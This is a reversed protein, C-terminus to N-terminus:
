MLVVDYQERTYLTEAQFKIPIDIFAELQAVSNSEQDLMVDVVEPAALVVFQRPSYQRAERLLERFIEYCITEATKISGRGDCLPCPECLIQGLSERTRKRTMEVLGLPSVQSIHSKARDKELHKELARLVAQRHEESAMDIFDLIIIGGLNRLRLQRAIAAAAVLNTKFITEELNRHGVYAGTNVDITAMAETQDVVLYGGSKLPVKKGLAKQIEDEIGYLEFIPREGPYHELRTVMEPVFKDAFQLMRQCTERSDIRVKEVNAGVFDRLVRLVLPLDEYLAIMGSTERIRDQISSWLRQLFQMDARLAWAEAGEAATRVIYGGGFETRFANVMEKLRQREREGDIKVSVGAVDSDALFVLFRSPLTIHTTLRAGKTGIPDKIVQVVLDQGERVLDTIALARDGDTAAMDTELPGKDLLCEPRIDSVHLFAARELGIDVFAAEMGPLVRCVQGKYINGVLGRKGAREILIEQLVGNEVVAVRTERPTVNILIEDGTGGEARTTM